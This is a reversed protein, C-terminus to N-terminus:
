PAVQICRLVYDEHHDQLYRIVEGAIHVAQLKMTRTSDIYGAQALIQYVSSRLRHRTSEPWDPMEPDRGRCDELFTEWLHRSLTLRFLRYQERVVLDLFDGLLVSHKVATALVAHTAVTGSGDRVLRWLEPGMLGLRGRILRGLRRATELSRAQLVNRSVIADKWGADDVGQLLLDAIIRSEPLKLAGATIDAHYRMRRAAGKDESAKLEISAGGPVRQIWVLAHYTRFRPLDM